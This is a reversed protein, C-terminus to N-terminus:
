GGVMVKKGKGTFRLEIKGDKVNCCLSYDLVGNCNSGEDGIVLREKDVYFSEIKNGRVLFVNKEIGAKWSDFILDNKLDSKITDDPTQKLNVFCLESFGTPLTIDEVLENGSGLGNNIHNEIFKRFELVQIEDGSKTIDMVRKYGFILISGIVIVALIYLFVSSSVEARARM